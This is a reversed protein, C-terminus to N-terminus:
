SFFGSPDDAVLGCLPPDDKYGEPPTPVPTGFMAKVFEDPTCSALWANTWPRYGCPKSYDLKAFRKGKPRSKVAM